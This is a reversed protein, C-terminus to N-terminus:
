QYQEVPAQGKPYAVTFKVPQTFTQGTSLTKTWSLIGDTPTKTNAPETLAVTIKEYRSIPVQARLVVERPFPTLNKVTLTEAYDRTITWGIIGPDEKPPLVTRTLQMREDEGLAVGASEGPAMSLHTQGVFGDQYFITCSGPLLHITSNNTIDARLVAHLSLKPVAEYYLHFAPQLEKILVNHTTNGTPITVPEAITYITALEAATVQAEPAIAERMQPAAAGDAVAGSLTNAMLGKQAYRNVVQSGDMLYWPTLKPIQLHRNPHSTSLELKVKNWDEGSNQEIVGRYTLALHQDNARLEYSPQWSADLIMYRVQFKVKTVQSASTKAAVVIGSRRNPNQTNAELAQLQNVLKTLKEQALYTQNELEVIRTEAHDINTVWEAYSTQKFKETPAVTTAQYGVLLTHQRELSATITKQKSVEQRCEAIQQSLDAPPYNTPAIQVELLSVPQSESSFLKIFVSDEEVNPLELLQNISEGASVTIEGEKTIEAGNPFVIIKQIVAAQSLSCLILSLLIISAKM